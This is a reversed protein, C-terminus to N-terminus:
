RVTFMPCGGIVAFSRLWRVKDALSFGIEKNSWDLALWRKIQRWRRTHRARRPTFQQFERATVADTTSVSTPADNSIM